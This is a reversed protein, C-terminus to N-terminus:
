KAFKERDRHIQKEYRDEESFVCGCYKQMYFGLDRAKQNGARFNPRFDRYLFKVGYEKAFREAARAIGDHDQYLSCLLTSTFHTFGHEACYRNLAYLKNYPAPVVDLSAAGAIFVTAGPFAARADALLALRRSHDPDFALKEALGVATGALAISFM